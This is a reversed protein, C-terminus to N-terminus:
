HADRDDIFSPRATYCVLFSQFRTVRFGIPRSRATLPYPEVQPPPARRPTARTTRRLGARDHPQGRPLGRRTPDVTWGRHRGDDCRTVDDALRSMTAGLFGRGSRRPALLPRRQGALHASLSPGGSGAQDSADTCRQPESCAALQGSGRPRPPDPGRVRARSRRGNHPNPRHPSGSHEPSASGGHRWCTGVQPHAAILFPRAVRLLGPIRSASDTSRLRQWTM